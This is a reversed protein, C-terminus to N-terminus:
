FEGIPMLPVGNRILNKQELDIKLRGPDIGFAAASARGLAAGIPYGQV